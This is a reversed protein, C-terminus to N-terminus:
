HVWDPLPAGLLPSTPVTGGVHSSYAVTFSRAPSPIRNPIAGSPNTAAVYRSSGASSVLVVPTTTWFPDLLRGVHSGVATSINSFSVRGFNSLPVVQCQSATRCLAPAEAIWEASSADVAHAVEVRASYRTGRSLNRMALTVVRGTVRVSASLTDGPAVKMSIFHAPAPVIETWLRYSAGGGPSCDASAGLQQLSPSSPSFGGIGVWFAASSGQAACTVKPMRWTGSASNFARNAATVGRRVVYGAWNSSVQPAAYTGGVRRPPTKLAATTTTGGAKGSVANCATLALVICLACLKM